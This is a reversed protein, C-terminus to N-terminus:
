DKLSKAQSARALMFISLRILVTPALLHDGVFIVGARLPNAVLAATVVWFFLTRFPLHIM